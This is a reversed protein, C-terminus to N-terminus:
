FILSSHLFIITVLKKSKDRVFMWKKARCNPMVGCSPLAICTPLATCSPLAPIVYCFASNSYLSTKTKRGHACKTIKQQTYSGGEGIRWVYQHTGELYQKLGVSCLDSQSSKVKRKYIQKM